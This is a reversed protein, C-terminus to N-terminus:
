FLNKTWEKVQVNKGCHQIKKLNFFSLLIQM